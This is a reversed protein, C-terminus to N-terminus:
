PEEEAATSATALASGVWVSVVVFPAVRTFPNRETLFHINLTHVIYTDINYVIHYFSISGM